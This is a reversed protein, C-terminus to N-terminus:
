FLELLLNERPAELSEVIYAEKTKNLTYEEVIKLNGNILKM